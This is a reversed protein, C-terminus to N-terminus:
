QEKLAATRHQHAARTTKSSADTPEDVFVPVIGGFFRISIPLGLAECRCCVLQIVACYGGLGAALHWVVHPTLGKLIGPLADAMDLVGSDCLIMDFLWASSGIAMYSIAMTVFIRTIIPSKSRRVLYFSWAIHVDVVIIFTVLFVWYLQQFTYYVVTNCVAAAITAPALWRYKQKGPAADVEADCYLLALMFYIMPLEDSSQFIWHLTGHLGASGMGTLVLVAFAVKVRRESVPHGGALRIRVCSCSQWLGLVGLMAIGLMSSWVNHPEAAYVSHLYNSECFDISSSHPEWYGNVSSSGSSGSMRAIVTDQDVSTESAAPQQISVTLLLKSTGRHICAAGESVYLPRRDDLRNFTEVVCKSFHQDRWTHHYPTPNGPVWHV